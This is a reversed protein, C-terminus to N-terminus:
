YIYCLHFVINKFCKFTYIYVGSKVVTYVPSWVNGDELWPDPMEIQYGDVIKQKFLGYEYRISYGMAPYNQSALADMFCAALRGLGGNGLGADPEKEYLDELTIGYDKLVEKLTDTLGLNYVGVM